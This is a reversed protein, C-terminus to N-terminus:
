GTRLGTGTLTGTLHVTVSRSVTVSLTVQRAFGHGGSVVVLIRVCVRTLGHTTLSVSMTVFLIGNPTGFGYGTVSVTATGIGLGNGTLHVYVVVSVWNRFTGTVQVFYGQGFVFVLVTM